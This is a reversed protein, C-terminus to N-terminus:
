LIRTDQYGNDITHFERPNRLVLLFCLKAQNYFFGASASKAGSINM